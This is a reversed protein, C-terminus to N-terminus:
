SDKSAKNYKSFFLFFFLGGVLVGLLSVISVLTRKSSFMEQLFIYECVVLMVLSFLFGIILKANM